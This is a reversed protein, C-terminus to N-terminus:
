IVSIKLVRRWFRNEVVFHGKLNEPKHKPYECLINQLNKKKLQLILVKQLIEVM